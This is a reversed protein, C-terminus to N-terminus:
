LLMKGAHSHIRRVLSAMIMRINVHTLFLAGPLLGCDPDADPDCDVDCDAKDAPWFGSLSRSQSHSRSVSEM